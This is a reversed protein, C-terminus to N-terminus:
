YIDLDEHMWTGGDDGYTVQVLDSSHCKQRETIADIINKAQQERGLSDTLNILSVGDEKLRNKTPTVQLELAKCVDSLCFLPYESTGATRIQGFKDSKFIM